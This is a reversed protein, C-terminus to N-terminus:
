LIFYFLSFYVLIEESETVLKVTVYEFQILILLIPLLRYVDPYPCRGRCRTICCPRYRM